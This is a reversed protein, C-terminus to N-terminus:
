KKIEQPFMRAIIECMRVFSDDRARMEDEQQRIADARRCVVDQARMTRIEKICPEWLARIKDGLAQHSASRFLDRWLTESIGCGVRRCKMDEVLAFLTYETQHTEHDIGWVEPDSNAYPVKLTVRFTRASLSILRDTLSMEYWYDHSDPVRMSTRRAYELSADELVTDYDIEFITDLDYTVWTDSVFLEPADRTALMYKIRDEDSPRIYSDVIDCLDRPLVGIPTMMASIIGSM